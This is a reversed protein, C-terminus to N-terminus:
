EAASLLLLVVLLSVQSHWCICCGRPVLSEANMETDSYKNWGWGFKSSLSDFLELHGYLHYM